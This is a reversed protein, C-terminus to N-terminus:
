FIEYCFLESWSLLLDGACAQCFLQDEASQTALAVLLPGTEQVGRGVIEGGVYGVYSELSQIFSVGIM